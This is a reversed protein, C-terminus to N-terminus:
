ILEVTASRVQEFLAEFKKNITKELVKSISKLINTIQRRIFCIKFHCSYKIYCGKQQLYGANKEHKEQLEQTYVENQKLSMVKETIYKRLNDKKVFDIVSVNCIDDSM